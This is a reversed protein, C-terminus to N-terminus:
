LTMLLYKESYKGFATLKRTAANNAQPPKWLLLLLLHMVHLDVSGFYCCSCVICVLVPPHCLDVM